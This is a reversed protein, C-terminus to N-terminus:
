SAAVLRPRARQDLGARRWVCVRHTCGAHAAPARSPALSAAARLARVCRAGQQARARVHQLVEVPAGLYLELDAALPQEGDAGCAARRKHAEHRVRRKERADASALQWIRRLRLRGCTHDLPSLSAAFDAALRAHLASTPDLPALLSSLLGAPETSPEPRPPSTPPPESGCGRLRALEQHLGVNERLLFTLYDEQRVARQRLAHIEAAMGEVMALERSYADVRADRWEDIRARVDAGAVYRQETLTSRPSSEDNVGAGGPAARPPARVISKVMLTSQDWADVVRRYRSTLIADDSFGHKRFFNVADHDAFALVTDHEGALRHSLARRLLQSGLGLGQFKTRV